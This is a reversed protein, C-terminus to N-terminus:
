DSYDVEESTFELMYVILDGQAQKDYPTIEGVTSVELIKIDPYRASLIYCMLTFPKLCINTLSHNISNLDHIPYKIINEENIKNILNKNNELVDKVFREDMAPDAYFIYTTQANLERLLKEARGKEDGLGIILIMNKDPKIVPLKESMVKKGADPHTKFYLSPSYSFWLRSHVLREELDLFYNILERYWIKPM